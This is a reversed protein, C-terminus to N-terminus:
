LNGLKKSAYLYFTELMKAAKDSKKKLALEMIRERDSHVYELVAFSMTYSIGRARRRAWWAADKMGYADCMYGIFLYPNFDTQDGAMIATCFWYISEELDETCFYCEALRRCLQSKSRCKTIGERLVSKAEAYNRMKMYYSACWYYPVHYDPQLRREDEFVFMEAPRAGQDQFDLITNALRMNGSLLRPEPEDKISCDFVEGPDLPLPKEKRYLLDFIGM